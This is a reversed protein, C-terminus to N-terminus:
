RMSLLKRVHHNPCCQKGLWYKLLSYLSDVNGNALVHTESGEHKLPSYLQTSPRTVVLLTESGGHKLPSYLGSLSMLIDVM